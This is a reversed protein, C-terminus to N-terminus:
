EPLTPDICNDQAIPSEMGATSADEKANIRARIAANKATALRATQLGACHRPLKSANPKWAPKGKEVNRIGTSMINDLRSLPRQCRDIRLLVDLVDPLDKM